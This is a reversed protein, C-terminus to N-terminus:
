SKKRSGKRAVAAKASEVVEIAADAEEEAVDTFRDDGAIERTAQDWHLADKGHPKGEAEWLAHARARIQEERDQAM